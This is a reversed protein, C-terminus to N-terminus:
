LLVSQYLEVYEQAVVKSDFERVVKDRANQCLQEHDSANVVWDIGRALDRVDFPKALYGTEKHEVIDKPGTADFCVVPTGSCQSEALTKGFAEQISPAVFVDAASYVLNLSINDNLFGFSHYEFGYSELLAKEFRGFFCLFVEESDLFELSDLYKQFGKYYDNLDTSGCLVIKKDTTLGLIHRAVNKDVKNFDSISINNLITMCTHNQFIKSQNVQETLWSSIGVATLSAPIYRLKRFFVFRSLDLKSNSGLQPCCGCGSKFKQCDLAYHCGGTLPWMDRITWVIPKDIKHLHKINVLGANVWHLHIIDADKYEQTKTFDYGVLGTSFVTTAKKKYLKLLIFDIQSRIISKVFGLKSKTLSLVTADNNSDRSTTLFVSGIGKSRLADHLWYAGRAAGGRLDGGSVIHLVKIPPNTNRETQM